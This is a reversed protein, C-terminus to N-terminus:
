APAFLQHQFDRTMVENLEILNKMEFVPLKVDVPLSSMKRTLRVFTEANLQGELKPLGGARFENLKGPLVLVLSFDPNELPLEALTADIEPDYGAMLRQGSLEAAPVSVLRRARGPLNIFSLLGFKTFPFM